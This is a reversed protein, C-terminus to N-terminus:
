CRKCFCVCTRMCAAGVCFVVWRYLRLKEADSGALQVLKRIVESVQSWDPSSCAMLKRWVGELAASVM